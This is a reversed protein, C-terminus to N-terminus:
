GDYPVTEVPEGHGDRFTITDPALGGISLIWIRPDAGPAVDYFPSWPDAVSSSRAVVHVVGPPMTGFLFQVAGNRGRLEHVRQDPSGCADPLKGEEDVVFGCIRGDAALYAAGGLEDTTAVARADDPVQKAVAGSDMPNAQQAALWEEATAPRLSEAFAIPDPHDGRGGPDSEPDGFDPLAMAEVEVIVGPAESWVLTPPLQSIHSLLWGDHGRVRVSRREAAAWTTWALAAEDGARVTLSIVAPHMTELPGGELDRGYTLRIGPDHYTTADPGAWAAYPLRGVDDLPGPLGPPLAGLAVEDGDVSLGEAITRLQDIELARSRLVIELGPREEWGVVASPGFSNSGSGCSAGHCALGDHGRVTVPDMHANGPLFRTPTADTYPAVEVVLDSSPEEAGVDGYLRLYGDPVPVGNADRPPMHSPADIIPPDFGEPAPDAILRPLEVLGQTSVDDPKTGEDDSGSRLALVTVTAGVVAVVAAAAVLVRRRRRRRCPAALDATLIVESASPAMIEEMLETEADRLDLSAVRTDGIPATAAVLQDLKEDNM